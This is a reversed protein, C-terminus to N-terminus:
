EGREYCKRKPMVRTIVDVDQTPTPFYPCEILTKIAADEKGLYRNGVDTKILYGGNPAIVRETRVTHNGTIEFYWGGQDDQRFIMVGVHGNEMKCSAALVITDMEKLQKAYAGFSFPPVVDASQARDVWCLVTTALLMLSHPKMTM